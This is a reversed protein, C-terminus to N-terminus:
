IESATQPYFNINFSYDQLCNPVSAVSPSKALKRGVAMWFRQEPAKLQRKCCVNQSGTNARIVAIYAVPWLPTRPQSQHDCLPGNSTILCNRPANAKKAVLILSAPWNEHVHRKCNGKFHLFFVLSSATNIWITFSMVRSRIKNWTSNVWSVNKTM